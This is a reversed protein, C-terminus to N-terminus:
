ASPYLAALEHSDLAFFEANADLEFCLVIMSVIFVAKVHKASLRLRSILALSALKVSSTGDTWPRKLSKCTKPVKREM